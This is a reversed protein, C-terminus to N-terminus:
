VARETVYGNEKITETEVDFGYRAAYSFEQAVKGKYFDWANQISGDPLHVMGIDGGGKISTIEYRYGLMECYKAAPNVYGKQAFVTFILFLSFVFTLLTFKKM